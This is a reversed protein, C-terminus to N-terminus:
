ISCKQPPRQEASLYEVTAICTNEPIENAAKFRSCSLGLRILILSNLQPAGPTIPAQFCRAKTFYGISRLSVKFYTSTWSNSADNIPVGKKNFCHFQAAFGLEAGEELNGLYGLISLTEEWLDM